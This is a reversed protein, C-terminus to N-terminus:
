GGCCGLRAETRACCGLLRRAVLWSADSHSTPGRSPPRVRAASAPGGWRRGGAWGRAQVACAASICVGTPSRPLLPQCAHVPQLPPPHAIHATGGQSVTTPSHNPTPCMWCCAALAKLSRRCLCGAPCRCALLCAPMCAHMSPPSLGLLTPFGPLLCRRCDKQTGGISQEAASGPFVAM